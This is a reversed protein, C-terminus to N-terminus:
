IDFGVFVPEPDLAIGFTDLVKMQIIDNLAIVDAATAGGTNIIALTHNTSIGANGLRYGKQFGAHEILWAAPVKFAYDLAFSPVEPFRKRLDDLQGKTVVPNKFFSGASLSNPDDTDIVM